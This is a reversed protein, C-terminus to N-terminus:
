FNRQVPGLPIQPAYTVAPPKDGPGWLRSIPTGTMNGLGLEGPYISQHFSDSLRAGEDPEFLREWVSAIGLSVRQGDRALELVATDIEGAFLLEPDPVVIGTVADVAALWVRVAAGQNAPATLAVANALTTPILTMDLGPITDGVAESIAEMDGITGYLADMGTYTEANFVIAAPGDCLRITYGPLAIRLLGAILVQRGGLAAAM